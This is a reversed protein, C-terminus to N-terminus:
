RSSRRSSALKELSDYLLSMAKSVKHVNITIMKKCMSCPIQKQGIIKPPERRVGLAMYGRM